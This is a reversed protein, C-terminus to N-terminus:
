PVVQQSFSEFLNGEWSYDGGKPVFIFFIARCNNSSIVYKLQMKREKPSSLFLGPGFLGPPGEKTSTNNIAMKTRTTKPKIMNKSLFRQGQCLDCSGGRMTLRDVFGSSSSSSLPSDSSSVSWDSSPRTTESGDLCSTPSDEPETGAHPSEKTVTLLIGLTWYYYHHYYYYYYCYCYCCYYYYYDDCGPIDIRRALFQKLRQLKCSWM